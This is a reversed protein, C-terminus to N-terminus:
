IQMIPAKFKMTNVKGERIKKTRLLQMIERRSTKSDGVSVLMKGIEIVSRKPDWTGIPELTTDQSEILRKVKELDTARKEYALRAAENEAVIEKQTKGYVLVQVDNILGKPIQELSRQALRNNEAIESELKRQHIIEEIYDRVQKEPLIIVGRNPKSSLFEALEPQVNYCALTGHVIEDLQQYGSNNKRRWNSMAINGSITAAYADLQQRAKKATEYKESDVAHPKVEIVMFKGDKTKYVLDCRMWPIEREGMRAKAFEAVETYQSNLGKKLAALLERNREQLEQPMEIDEQFDAALLESDGILEKYNKPDTLYTVLYLHRLSAANLFKKRKEQNLPIEELREEVVEELIYPHPNPSGKAQGNGDKKGAWLKNVIGRVSDETREELGQERLIENLRKRIIEYSGKRMRGKETLGTEEVYNIIENVIVDEELRGDPIKRLRVINGQNNEIHQLGIESFRPDLAIIEEYLKRRGEYTYGYTGYFSSDVQQIIPSSLLQRKGEQRLKSDEELVKEGIKRLIQIYESSGKEPVKLLLEDVGKFQTPSYGLFSIIKLFDQKKPNRQSCIYGMVKSPSVELLRSFGDISTEYAARERDLFESFSIKKEKETEEDVDIFYLKQTM